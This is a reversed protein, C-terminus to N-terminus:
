WAPAGRRLRKRLKQPLTLTASFVFTQLLGARGNADPAADKMTADGDDDGVEDELDEEEDKAAGADGRQSALSEM